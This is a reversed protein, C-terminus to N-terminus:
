LMMLQEVSNMSDSSVVVHYGSTIVDTTILLQFVLSMGFITLEHKTM